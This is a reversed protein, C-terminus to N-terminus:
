LHKKGTQWLRLYGGLLGLLPNVIVGVLVLVVSTSGIALVAFVVCLFSALTGNLLEDHRAIRAAVYGGLVTFGGGIIMNLITVVLDQLLLAHLQTMQEATPLAYLHYKASIYVVAIFGWINTGVIDLVAGIIVSKFVIKQFM